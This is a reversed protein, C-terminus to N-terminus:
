DTANEVELQAIQLERGSTIEITTKGCRPCVYRNDKIPFKIQCQSCIAEIPIRNIGLTANEV